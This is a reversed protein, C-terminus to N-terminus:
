ALDLPWVVPVCNVGALQEAVLELGRRLRRYFTPRSLHLREMVVEHSGVGKVYYDLLLRGAEQDRPRPSAALESIAAILRARLDAVTGEGGATTILHCLPSGALAAPFRLNQLASKIQEPLTAALAPGVTRAEPTASTAGASVVMRPRIEIVQVVQGLLWGLITSSIVLAGSARGISAPSHVTNLAGIDIGISGILGAAVWGVNIRRISPLRVRTPARRHSTPVMGIHVQNLSSNAALPLVSM